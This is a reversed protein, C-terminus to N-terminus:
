SMKERLSFVKKVFAEKHDTYENIGKSSQRIYNLKLDEYEKKANENSNLYDRFFILNNWLEGNFDVLHIFHTKVQYTSDTFKAFVIENTRELRLRYFGTNRLGNLLRDSVSSLDNIGILIDIIPKAQIGIIATSGIHEIQHDLLNTHQLLDEKVKACEQKWGPNYPVVRVENSELGLKM